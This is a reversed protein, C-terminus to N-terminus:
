GGLSHSLLEATERDISLGSDKAKQEIIHRLQEPTDHACEIAAAHKQREFIKRLASDKKLAGAEVVVIADRPTTDMVGEFAPVLNRAGAKVWIARRGGFLGITNVEDALRGTDGSLEDGEMRVLQFADDLSDISSKV